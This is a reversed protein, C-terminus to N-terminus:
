RRAAVGDAATPRALDAAARSRGIEAVVLQRYCRGRHFRRAAFAVPGWVVRHLPGAAPLLGLGVRHTLRWLGVNFVGRTSIHEVRDGALAAVIEDISPVGNELHDALWRASEGQVGRDAHRAALWLDAEAAVPGTPGSVIVRGGDRTVRKM